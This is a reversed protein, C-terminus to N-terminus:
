AFSSVVGLFRPFCLMLHSLMEQGESTVLLRANATLQTLSSQVVVDLGLGHRDTKTINQETLRRHTHFHLYSRISNYM